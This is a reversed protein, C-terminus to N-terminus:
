AGGTECYAAAASARATRWSMTTEGFVGLEVGKNRFRPPPGGSSVGDLWDRWPGARAPRTERPRDPTVLAPLDVVSRRPVPAGCQPFVFFEAILQGELSQVHPPPPAM